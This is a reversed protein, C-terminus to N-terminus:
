VLSRGGDVRLIQGTVFTNEILSLVAQAVHEPSGHRRLPTKRIIELKAAENLENGDEPWAIAGPAVANVRVKPAFERALSMTQMTLAAKTQCYVGYGKLPKHAHVDTINIIAGSQEALSPYAAKCLDFPAKVNTNFMTNWDGNVMSDTRLFVSANNVVVDLRNAWALTKDLLQQIDNELLLDAKLALASQHDLQNLKQSLSHAENESHLYHIVVHFGAAHLRQTIAAGVRRAAGTILAIPAQSKKPKM